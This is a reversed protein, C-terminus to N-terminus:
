RISKMFAMTAARLRADAIGHEVRQEMTTGLQARLSGFSPDHELVAPIAATVLYHLYADNLNSLDRIVEAATRKLQKATLAFQPTQPEDGCFTALSWLENRRLLPRADLERQYAVAAEVDNTHLLIGIVSSRYAFASSREGAVAPIQVPVAVARCRTTSM